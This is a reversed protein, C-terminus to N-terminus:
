SLQKKTEDKKRKNIYRIGFFVRYVVVLDISVDDDGVVVVGGGGFFFVWDFWDKCWIHENGRSIDVM